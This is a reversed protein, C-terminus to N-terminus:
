SDNKRLNIDHDHTEHEHSKKIFLPLDIAENHDFEYYDNHRSMRRFLWTLIIPTLIFVTGIILLYLWPISYYFNIDYINTLNNQGYSVSLHAKNKGFRNTFPIPETFDKKEGPNLVINEENIKVAAIEVGRSDYVIIEGQPTQPLDGTNELSFTFNHSEDYVIQDSKFNTLRLLEIQKETISVRIIVGMSQGALIKKEAEDRNLGSAFGVFAHYDGPKANPNIRITLPVSTETGSQMDIRGRTIEIWSTVSTTRDSMSAPIFSKIENNGDMEIEHVSAFLRVHNSDNNKLNIDKTLIDRAETEHDIILPSVTINEASAFNPATGVFLAILFIYKSFSKFM